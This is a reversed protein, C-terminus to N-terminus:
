GYPTSPLGHRHGTARQEFFTAVREPDPPELLIEVM